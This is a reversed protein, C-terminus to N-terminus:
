KKFIFKIISAKEHQNLILIPFSIAIIIWTISLRWDVQTQSWTQWSAVSILILGILWPVIIHNQLIIKHTVLNYYIMYALYFIHVIIFAIGIGQIDKGILIAISSLTLFSINLLSESLFYAKMNAYALIPMALVWGFVKFYDGILMWKIIEVAPMFKTSYLLSIIFPKLVIITIIMPIILLISIRLFNNILIRRGDADQTETLTPLYYTAFAGLLLMVYTMSLTWAAEFIGVNDLGGGHHIILSKIILLVGNAIISIILTALAIHYFHNISNKDFTPKFRNFLPKLWGERYAVVLSFFIGGFTSASIMWILAITYGNGILKSIPYTLSVTITSVIIHAIALKGLAKFSNFISNLYTFLIMLATPLSLWRILNVTEINHTGFINKAIWPAGTILIASVLIAGTVFVWFVSVMYKDKEEGTKRALGQVLATQGGMTGATSGTLIIQRIMSLLGIGSPGLIMAMIKTGIIGLIITTISASGVKLIAKIINLM